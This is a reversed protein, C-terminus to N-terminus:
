FRFGFLGGGPQDTLHPQIVYPDPDFGVSAAKNLDDSNMTVIYQMSEAETVEAALELARAVQREDVGDYLHSDHVLFDPGRGARHATVALTLDFCFIVMSHIGRSGDDEIHTEIKMRQKGPKFVLYPNGSDGYL